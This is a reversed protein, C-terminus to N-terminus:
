QIANRRLMFTSAKQIPNPGFITLQVRSPTSHDHRQIGAPPKTFSGWNTVDSMMSGLDPSDASDSGTAEGKDLIRTARTPGIIFTNNPTAMAQRNHPTPIGTCTLGGMM